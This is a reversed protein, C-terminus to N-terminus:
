EICKITSEFYKVSAYLSKIWICSLSGSKKLCFSNTIFNSVKNKIKLHFSLIKSTLFYEGRGHLIHNLLDRLFIMNTVNEVSLRLFHTKLPCFLIGHRLLFHFISNHPSNLGNSGFFSSNGVMGTGELNSIQVSDQLRM